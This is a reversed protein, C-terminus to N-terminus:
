EGERVGERRGYSGGDSGKRWREKVGESGGEM